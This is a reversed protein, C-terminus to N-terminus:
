SPETQEQVVAPECFVEEVTGSFEASLRDLIVRMVELFVQQEETNRIIPIGARDAEDLLYSQLRWIGDFSRLYRKSRRGPTKVGRGRIRSRLTASNLVALMVPVVLADADEPIRALLSPQVHVGELILSVRERIARQVVAECAVAILDAQARFGDALLEEEDAHEADAWPLQHWAEFSSAHLVPLLREPLMM